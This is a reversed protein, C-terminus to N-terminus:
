TTARFHFCLATFTGQLQLAVGNFKGGRGFPSLRGMYSYTEDHCPGIRKTKGYFGSTVLRRATRRAARSDATVPQPIAHSLPDAQASLSCPPLVPPVPDSGGRPASCRPFVVCHAGSLRAWAFEM